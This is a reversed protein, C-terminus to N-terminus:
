RGKRFTSAQELNPSKQKDTATLFRLWNGTRLKRRAPRM